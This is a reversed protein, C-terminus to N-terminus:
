APLAPSPTGVKKKQRPSVILYWLYGLVAVSFAAVISGARGLGALDGRLADWLGRRIGAPLTRAAYYRESSTSRDWGDMHAMAAKGWGHLFCRGILYRFTARGAPVRHKM